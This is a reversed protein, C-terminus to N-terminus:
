GRGKCWTGDDKRHSFWGQQGEKGVNWKMQLGHVGCWGPEQSASAPTPAVAPAPAAAPAPATRLRQHPKYDLEEFLAFLAKINTRFEQWDQGRVTFQPEWGKPTDVVVNMSYPAETLISGTHHMAVDKLALTVSAPAGSAPASRVTAPATAGPTTPLVHERVDPWPDEETADGAKGELTLYLRRYLTIAIRHECWRDALGQSYACPCTQTIDYGGPHEDDAVHFCGQKDCTVAGERILREAKELRKADGPKAYPMVRMSAVLAALQEDTEALSPTIDPSGSMYHENQAPM